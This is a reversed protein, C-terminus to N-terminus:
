DLRTADEAHNKSARIAEALCRATPHSSHMALDEPPGVGVVEGGADAAGPGLDILYDAKRILQLNHDVVVDEIVALVM